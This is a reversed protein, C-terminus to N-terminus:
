PIVSHYSSVRRFPKLMFLLQLSVNLYGTTGLTKIGTFSQPTTPEITTYVKSQPVVSMSQRPAPLRSSSLSACCQRLVDNGTARDVPDLAQCAAFTERLFRFLASSAEETKSFPLRSALEQITESM